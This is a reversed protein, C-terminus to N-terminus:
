RRVSPVLKWMGDERSFHLQKSIKKGDANVGAVTVEAQDANVIEGEISRNGKLPKLDMIISTAAISASNQRFSDFSKRGRTIKEVDAAVKKQAISEIIWQSDNRDVANLVQQSMETPSMEVFEQQIGVKKDISQVSPICGLIPLCLMTISKCVCNCIARIM